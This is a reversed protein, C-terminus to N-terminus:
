KQDKPARSEDPEPRELSNLFRNAASSGAIGLKNLIPMTATAATGALGHKLSALIPVSNLVYLAADKNNGKQLSEQLGLAQSVGPILDALGLMDHGYGASGTFTRAFKNKIDTTPNDGLLALALRDRWTPDYARMVPEDGSSLAAALRQPSPM